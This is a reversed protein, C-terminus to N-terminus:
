QGKGSQPYFCRTTCMRDQRASRELSHIITSTRGRRWVLPWKDM